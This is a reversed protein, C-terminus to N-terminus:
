PTITVTVAQTTTLGTMCSLHNFDRTVVQFYRTQGPVFGATQALGVAPEGEGGWPDGAAGVFGQTDASRVGHRVIGGVACRLGDFVMSQVGSELGFCPNLPNTTAVASGSFLRCFSTPPAGTLSFRLDQNSGSPLSISPDGTAVLRASTLFSNLCGGISGAPSENGCPCATCGMQDGGDGNCLSPAAQDSEFAGIDPALGLPRAIGRQDFPEFAAPDGADLAPSGLLLAHTLTPGGNDRLVDFLASRPSAVTGVIDGNVGDVLGPAGKDFLNHGLSIFQGTVGWANDSIVSNRLEVRNSTVAVASPSCNDFCAGHGSDTVTVHSLRATPDQPFVTISIGAGSHSRNGSFTTNSIELLSQTARLGGGVGYGFQATATNESFTTNAISVSCGRVSLGGGWARDYYSCNPTCDYGGQFASNRSLTTNTISLSGGVQYIGGGSAFGASYGSHSAGNLRVTCQDIVVTPGSALDDAFIGGGISASNAQVTSNTLVLGGSVRIGGGENSVGGTITVQDLAAVVGAPITLVRHVLGGSLITDTAGSGIFDLDFPVTLDETYIGQAIQITDGPSALAIAAAITCVPDSATGTGTACGSASADVFIDAVPALAVALSLAPLVGPSFLLNM